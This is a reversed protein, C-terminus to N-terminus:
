APRRDTGTLMAYLKALAAPLLGLAWFLLFPFRNLTPQLIRVPETQPLFRLRIAEAARLGTTVAGEMSVLDVHSRCYDGALALNDIEIRRKPDDPLADPRFAWIGVDNMFLPETVHHQMVSHTIENRKIVPIYKCLEDIIMTTASAEDVGELETFDTCVINLAAGTYRPTGDPNKWRQSVDIFTLGFRSDVLNVHDPPLRPIPNQFYLNLSAMARSRLGRVNGLTPCVEYVESPCVDPLREPPIALVVADFDTRTMAAGATDEVVLGTLRTGTVQMAKLKQERLVQVGRAQLRATFPDIFREQLSGNLIRHMPIPDNAWFHIVKKTTMASVFHSPVSIAKLLLDQYVNAMEETRYFRSRLFGTISLQDLRAKEDLHFSALDATSFFFLFTQHFPLLGATLNRWVNRLASADHLARFNPFPFKTLHLQQFDHCDIFHDLIGLEDVIQWINKYWMPFIHYGHDDFDDGNRNSGAKGGLRVSSEILTVECGREVLRLAATMGALGGGVVVVRVSM